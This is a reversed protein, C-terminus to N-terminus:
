HLVGGGILVRRDQPTQILIANGQDVAIFFIELQRSRSLDRSNV